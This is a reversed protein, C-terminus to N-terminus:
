ETTAQAKLSKIHKKSTAHATKSTNKSYERGCPECKWKPGADTKRKKKPPGGSGDLESKGFLIHEFNYAENSLRSAERESVRAETRELRRTHRRKRTSESMWRQRHKRESQAIKVIKQRMGETIPVDCRELIDLIAEHMRHNWCVTLYCRGKWSRWYDIEKPTWVMRQRHISESFCTNFGHVFESVRRAITDVIVRIKAIVWAGKTTEPDLFFNKSEVKEAHTKEKLGCPCGENCPGICYHSMVFAWKELFFARALGVDNAGPFEKEAQKVLGMFRKGIRTRLGKYGHADKCIKKLQKVLNKKVHGPDYNIPVTTTRPDTRWVLSNTTDKDMTISRLLRTATLLISSSDVVTLDIIDDDDEEVVIPVVEICCVCGSGECECSGGAGAQERPQDLADSDNEDLLRDNDDDDFFDLGEDETSM